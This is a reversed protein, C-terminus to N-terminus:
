ENSCQDQQEVVLHKQRLNHCIEIFKLMFAKVSSPPLLSQVCTEPRSFSLSCQATIFSYRFTFTFVPRRIVSSFHERLVQVSFDLLAPPVVEVSFYEGACADGAPSEGGDNQEAGMIM